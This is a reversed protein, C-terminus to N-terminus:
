SFWLIIQRPLVHLLAQVIKVRMVKNHMDNGVVISRDAEVGDRGLLLSQETKSRM